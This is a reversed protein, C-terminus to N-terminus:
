VKARRKPTVESSVYRLRLNVLNRNRQMLRRIRDVLDVFISQRAVVRGTVDDFEAASLGIVNGANAAAYRDIADQISRSANDLEDAVSSRVKEHVQALGEMYERVLISVDLQDSSAALEALVSAKFKGDDRIKSLNITAYSAHRLLGKDEPGNSFSGTWSSDFTAGHLPLGRHQAYGRLAEMFRYSISTDYVANTVARFAKSLGPTKLQNLYHPIHDIYSKCSHLLNSLRRAFGLRTQNAEHYGEHSLVMDNMASRILEMELEIYNQILCDWEEEIAAIIGV